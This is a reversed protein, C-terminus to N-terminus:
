SWPREGQYERSSEIKLGKPTVWGWAPGKAYFDARDFFRTGLACTKRENQYLFYGSMWWAEGKPAGGSAAPHPCGRKIDPVTFSLHLATTEVSIRCSERDCEAEKLPKAQAYTVFARQGVGNAWLESFLGLARGRLLVYGKETVMAVQRLDPSLFLQPARTTFLSLVGVVVMIVGYRRVKGRWLCLWALGLSILAIGWETPAPAYSLAQPLAFSELGVPLLLFYLAVMPMLLVTVVPTLVLNALIGYLSLTNFHFLVIPATAAEAILSTLAMFLVVRMGRTRWSDEPSDEHFIHEFAAILAATAAFSLQFGPEIV